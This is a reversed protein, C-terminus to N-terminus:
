NHDKMLNNRNLYTRSITSAEMLEIIARELSQEIRTPSTHPRSSHDQLECLCTQSIPQGLLFSNQNVGFQLAIQSKKLGKEVVLRCMEERRIPTIRANQHINM